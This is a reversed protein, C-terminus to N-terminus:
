NRLNRKQQVIILVLYQLELQKWTKNNVWDQHSTTKWSPTSVRSKLKNRVNPILIIRIRKLYRRLQISLLLYFCHISIMTRQHFIQIWQLFGKIAKQRTTVAKKDFKSKFRISKWLKTYYVILKLDKKDKLKKNHHNIPVLLLLNYTM